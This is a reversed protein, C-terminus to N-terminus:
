LALFVGSFMESGQVKSYAEWEGVGVGGEYKYTLKPEYFVNGFDEDASGKIGFSPKIRM